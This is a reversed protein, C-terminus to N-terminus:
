VLTRTHSMGTKLRKTVVTHLLLGEGVLSMDGGNEEVVVKYAGTAARIPVRRLLLAGRQISVRSGITRLFMSSNVKSQLSFQVLVAKWLIKLIRRRCASATVNWQRPLTTPTPKCTNGSQVFCSPFLNSLRATTCGFCVCVVLSQVIVNLNRVQTAAYLTWCKYFPFFDWPKMSIVKPLSNSTKVSFPYILLYLVSLYYSTRDSSCWMVHVLCGKEAPKKEKKGQLFHKFVNLQGCSSRKRKERERERQLFSSITQNWFPELSLIVYSM